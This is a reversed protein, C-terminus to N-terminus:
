FILEPALRGPNLNSSQRRTSMEIETGGNVFHSYYYYVGCPNRPLYLASQLTGPIYYTEVTYAIITGSNLNTSDRFCFKPSAVTIVSLLM